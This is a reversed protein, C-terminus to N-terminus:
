TKEKPQQTSTPNRPALLLLQAVLLRQYMHPLGTSTSVKRHTPSSELLCYYLSVSNEAQALRSLAKIM